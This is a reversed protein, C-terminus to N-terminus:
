SNVTGTQDYGPTTSKTLNLTLANAAAATVVTKNKVSNDSTPASVPPLNKRELVGNVSSMMEVSVSKTNTSAVAAKNATAIKIINATSTATTKMAKNTAKARVLLIPLSIQIQLTVVNRHTLKYKM